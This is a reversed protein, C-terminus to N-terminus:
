TGRSKWTVLQAAVGPDPKPSPHIGAERYETLPKVLCCAVPTKVGRIRPVIPVGPREELSGAHIGPSVEM